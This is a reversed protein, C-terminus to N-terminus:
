RRNGSIARLFVCFRVWFYFTGAIAPVAVSENDYMGGMSRMIHAPVIAMFFAAM